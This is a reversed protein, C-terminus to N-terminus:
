SPRMWGRPLTTRKNPMRLVPHHTCRTTVKLIMSRGHRNPM